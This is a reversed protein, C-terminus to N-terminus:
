EMELKRKKLDICIVTGEGVASIAWIRHGLNECIRRCLYLGIGSAKKDSRGNYGTYGKEFIRPVDEPAIGIGTDRICLIENEKTEHDMSVRVTGNPKTYKLANSLVQEIVFLLWKEDTLVLAGTEQFDMRIKKRIFSSAFKRIAQRCIEDLHCTHIVYDCSHSDLRLYMMVMEVYQEIRFLEERLERSMHSDENQLQLRMSAIPIKIQHVWMTYYDVLDTYRGNMQNTIEQKEQYLIRILEQYDEEVKEEYLPMHELTISIEKHLSALKKHKNQFSLFSKGFFIAGFFATLGAAYLVPALPLQYLFFTIGFLICAMIYFVITKRCKGIYSFFLKM